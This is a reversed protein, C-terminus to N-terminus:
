WGNFDHFKHYADRDVFTLTGLLLHTVMVLIAIPIYIDETEDEQKMDHTMWGNSLMLVVMTMIIESFMEFITGAVDLHVLGKGDEYYTTWHFM